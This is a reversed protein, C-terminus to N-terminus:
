KGKGDGGEELWGAPHGTSLAKFVGHEKEGPKRGM